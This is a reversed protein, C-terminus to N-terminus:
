RRQATRPAFPLDCEVMKTFEGHPLAAKAEILLKGIEIMGAVVTKRTAEITKETAKRIREAWGAREARKMLVREKM